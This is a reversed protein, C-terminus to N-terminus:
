TWSGDEDEGEEPVGQMTVEGQTEGIGGKGELQKMLRANEEKLERILKETPSENVIAKTKISKARNAALYKM